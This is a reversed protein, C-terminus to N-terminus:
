WKSNFKIWRSNICLGGTKIVWRSDTSSFAIVTSIHKYPFGTKILLVSLTLALDGLTRSSVLVRLPFGCSCLVHQFFVHFAQVFLLQVVVAPFRPGESDGLLVLISRISLNHHLPSENQGLLTNQSDATKFAGM